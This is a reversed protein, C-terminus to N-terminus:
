DMYLSLLNNHVTQFNKGRKIISNTNNPCKVILYPGTKFGQLKNKRTMDLLWVLDGEKFESTKATKDYYNKNTEKSKVINEIAIQRTKRFKNRLDSLYDDYTYDLEPTKKLNTPILPTFGFLLEMPMFKTTSNKTTNYQFAAFPVLLDWNETDSHGFARLYNGLERHYREVQNTQAHYITSCLKTIGLLKCISNFLSSAYNSGNDSLLAIENFLGYKLILNEVLASALTTTEQNQLPVAVVFKTLACQATVIYKNHNMSEPLPGVVDTFTLAWPRANPTYIKMPSKNIKVPNRYAQCTKCKEIYDSVLQKLNPFTYIERIKACTKDVGIHGQMMSGHFEAIIKEIEESNSIEIISSCFQVIIKSKEFIYRIIKIFMKNGKHIDMIGIEKININECHTKLQLTLNFFDENTITKINRSHILIIADLKDKTKMELLNDDTKNFDILSSFNEPCNSLKQDSYFIKVINKNNTIKWDVVKENDFTQNKGLENFNKYSLEKSNSQNIKTQNRTTILIQNGEMPYRTLVDAVVNLKGPIHHIEFDFEALKLTFRLLRSGPDKISLLWSLSKADTFVKFHKGLLYCRFKKTAWVIALLEKEITSYNILHKTLKESIFAIPLEKNEHTQSLVASIYLKSADTHLNMTKNFDPYILIPPSILKSKLIEFSKQMEINWSFSKDKSLQNTLPMAIGSYNLIFKRYFGTLGLFSRIQKNTTPTKFKMIAEVLKEDPKVGHKNIKHGLFLLEEKFFNCKKPKLKLNYKELREFIIKLHEFHEEINKSFVIIDDLFSFTFNLSDLIIAILKNFTHPAAVLGFPMRCFEYKRNLYSFATYQTSNNELEIQWFGASADLTSFIQNNGLNNIIDEVNNMPYSPAITNENLKRFDICLRYSPNESSDTKKKVLLAPFNFSSFSPKIIKQELMESIQRNVEDKLNYPLKYQRINIPQTNPKLIIEHKIINTCSLHEGLHFIHEYNVCFNFFTNREKEDLHKLDLGKKLISIREERSQPLPEIHTEERKHQDERTFLVKIDTVINEDNEVYIDYIKDIPNQNAIFYPIKQTIFTNEEYWLFFTLTPYKLKLCEPTLLDDLNTIIDNAKEKVINVENENVQVLPDDDMHKGTPEIHDYININNNHEKTSFYEDNILDDRPVDNLNKNHEQKSFYENNILDDRPVYNLNNNHEQKSFYENNILDDRPVDNLNKNHEQKSFYENNILDDCPVDNLYQDIGNGESTFAKHKKTSQISSTSNRTIFNQKSEPNGLFDNYSNPNTEVEPLAAAEVKLDILKIITITENKLTLTGKMLDIEFSEFNKLFNIGLIGDSQGLNSSILQFEIPLKLKEISIIDQITGLSQINNDTIGTIIVKHMENIQTKNGIFEEKLISIQAATDLIFNLTKNLNLLKAKIAFM